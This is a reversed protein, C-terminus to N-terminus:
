ISRHFNIPSGPRSSASSGPAPLALIMAMTFPSPNKRSSIGPPSWGLWYEAGHLAGSEDARVNKWWWGSLVCRNSRAWNYYLAGSWAHTWNTQFKNSDLRLGETTFFKRKQDKWTMTFQWDELFKTYKIWYNVTSIALNIGMEIFARGAKAVPKAEAQKLADARKEGARLGSIILFLVLFLLKNNKM